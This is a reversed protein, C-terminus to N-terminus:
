DDFLGKEVADYAIITGSTITQPTADLADTPLYQLRDEDVFVLVEPLIVGVFYRGELTQDGSDDGLTHVGIREGTFYIIREADLWRGDIYGTEAKGTRVSVPNRGDADARFLTFIGPDRRDIYLLHRGDPSWRATIAPITGIQEADATTADIRWLAAQPQAALYSDPQPIAIYLTNADTWQTLPYFYNHTGTNIAPFTLVPQAGETILQVRGESANDGPQVVSIAGGPGVVFAGGPEVATMTGTTVEVRYLDDAPVFAFGQPQQTNYYFTSADAWSALLFYVPEPTIQRNNTGDVDIMWLTEGPTAAADTTLERVFYAVTAGDPSLRARYIAGSALLRPEADDWLYLANGDNTVEIWIVVPTHDDTQAGSVAMMLFVAVTLWRLM